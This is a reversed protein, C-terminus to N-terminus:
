HAILCDQNGSNHFTLNEAAENIRGGCIDLMLQTLRGADVRPDAVIRIMAADRVVDAMLELMEAWLDAKGEVEAHRWAAVAYPRAVTITEAM